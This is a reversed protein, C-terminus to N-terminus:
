FIWRVEADGRSINARRSTDANHCSSKRPHLFNAVSKAHMKVVLPDFLREVVEDRALDGLSFFSVRMM